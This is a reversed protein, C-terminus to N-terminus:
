KYVYSEHGGYSGNWVLCLYFSELVNNQWSWKQWCTLAKFFFFIFNFLDLFIINIKEIIVNKYKVMNELVNMCKIEFLMSPALKLRAIAVLLADSLSNLVNKDEIQM